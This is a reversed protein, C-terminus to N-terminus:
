KLAALGRQVTAADTPPAVTVAAAASSSAGAQPAVALAGSAASVAAQAPGPASAAAAFRGFMQVRGTTRLEALRQRVAAQRHENLLAQAIAPRAAELTVPAPQAAARYIVRAGGPAALLLAQGDKMALLRQLLAPALTEAPQTSRQAQVPLGTSRLYDVLQEIRSFDGLRQRLRAVQEPSAQVVFEQLGYVKREAFLAPRAAFYAAVEAADPPKAQGAVRSTYARALVERRAAALAQMVQPERDLKDQLAAQVALEQEVLGALLSRGTAEAQEPQLGPTRQMLFNVQHVSIEEGNVKALIQSADAAHGGGGCAALALLPLLFPARLARSLRNLPPTSLM